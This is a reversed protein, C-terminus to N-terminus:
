VAWQGTRKSARLSHLGLRIVQQACAFARWAFDAIEQAVDEVDQAVDEIDRILLHSLLHILRHSLLHSLLDRM